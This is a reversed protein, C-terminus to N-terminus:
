TYEWEKGVWSQVKQKKKKEDLDIQVTCLTKSTDDLSMFLFSDGEGM